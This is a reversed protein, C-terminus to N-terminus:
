PIKHYLVETLLLFALFLIISSRCRVSEYSLLVHDKFFHSLISALHLFSHDVALGEVAEEPIVVEFGSPNM